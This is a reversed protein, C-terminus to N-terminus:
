VEENQCAPLINEEDFNGIGLKNKVDLVDIIKLSNKLTVQLEKLTISNL